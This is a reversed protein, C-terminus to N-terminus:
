WSCRVLTSVAGAGSTSSGLLFLNNKKPCIPHCSREHPGDSFPANGVGIRANFRCSHNILSEFLGIHLNGCITTGHPLTTGEFPHNVLFLGVVIPDHFTTAENTSGGWISKVKEYSPFSSITGGPPEPGSCLQNMEENNRHNQQGDHGM